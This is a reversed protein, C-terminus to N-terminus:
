VLSKLKEDLNKTLEESKAKVRMIRDGFISLRGAISM